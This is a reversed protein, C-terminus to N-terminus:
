ESDKKDRLMRISKIVNVVILSIGVGLSVVMGLLSLVRDVEISNFYGVASWSFTIGSTTIQGTPRKVAEWIERLADM